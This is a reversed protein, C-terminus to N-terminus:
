LWFCVNEKKNHLKNEREKTLLDLLAKSTMREPHCLLTVLNVTRFSLKDLLRQVYGKWRVGIAGSPSSVKM